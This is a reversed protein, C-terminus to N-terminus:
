LEAVTRLVLKSAMPQTASSAGGLESMRLRHSMSCLVPKVQCPLFPGLMTPHPQLVEQTDSEASLTRVHTLECLVM